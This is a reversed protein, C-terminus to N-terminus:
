ALILELCGGERPQKKKCPNEKPRYIRAIAILLEAMLIPLLTADNKLATKLGSIIFAM